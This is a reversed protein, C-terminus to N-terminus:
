WAPPNKFMSRSNFYFISKHANGFLEVKNEFLPIPETM